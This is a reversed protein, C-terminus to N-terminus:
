DSASFFSFSYSDKLSPSGGHLPVKPAMYAGVQVGWYMVARPMQSLCALSSGQGVTKRM